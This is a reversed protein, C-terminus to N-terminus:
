SPIWAYSGFGMTTKQGVGVWQGWYLLAAEQEPHHSPYILTGILGSPALHHERTQYPLVIERAPRSAPTLPEIQWQAPAARWRLRAPLADLGLQAAQTPALVRLRAAISELVSGLSPWPLHRYQRWGAHTASGSALLLPARLELRHLRIASAPEVALAPLHSPADIVRVEGLRALRGHLRSACQMRLAQALEDAQEALAGFLVIGFDLPEPDDEDASEAQPGDTVPPPLVAFHAPAQRGGPRLLPLLEPAHNMAAREVFGHLVGGWAAQAGSRPGLLLQLSMLRM